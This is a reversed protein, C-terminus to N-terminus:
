LEDDTSSDSLEVMDPETAQTPLGSASTDDSSKSGSSSCEFRDNYNRPRRLAKPPSPSHAQDPTDVEVVRRKGRNTSTYVYEIGHKKLLEPVNDAM